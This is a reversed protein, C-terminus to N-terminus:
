RSAFLCSCSRMPFACIEVFSGFISQFFRSSSRWVRMARARTEVQVRFDRVGLIRHETDLLVNPEYLTLFWHSLMLTASSLSNWAGQALRGAGVSVSAGTFAVAIEVPTLKFLRLWFSLRHPWSIGALRRHCCFVRSAFGARISSPETTDLTAFRAFLAYFLLGINALLYVGVGDECRGYQAGRHDRATTVM